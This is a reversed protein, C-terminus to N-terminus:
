QEMALSLLEELVDEIEIGAKALMKAYMSISTFGPITNIENFLVKKDSTRVFFDARALGSCGLLTFIRAANEQVTKFTVDDIRAPIHLESENALYKADYDYFDNCPVVEGVMPARPNENSGIVACEVEMGVIGEEAVIKTDHLFADEVAKELEDASSVKSVGISSGANAPKIFLPFGLYKACDDIFKESCAAYEGKTIGLWKAQLFGFHDAMTNTIAKDMCMASSLTDCGVFPIGAIKFFGQITGDEGNKGHLVPFIVDIYIDRNGDKEYVTIGHVSRDPSVVAPFVNDSDSLWTGNEINQTDGTYLLWRGDKTIGLTLVEWKDKRIRDAVSRASCLSVDHESSVGGFIILVKKM